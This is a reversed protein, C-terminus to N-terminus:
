ITVTLNRSDSLTGNRATANVNYTGAATFNYDIYTFIQESPQLTANITSNIVNSNKTDLNWSVNTLNNNLNNKIVFEFISGNVSQNLLSLNYAEIHKVNLTFTKTDSYTVNTVIASPTFTGTKGYDYNAYIFVSENPQISNFVSTSNDNKDM